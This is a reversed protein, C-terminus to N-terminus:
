GRKGIKGVCDVMRCRKHLVFGIESGGFGGCGRIGRPNVGIDRGTRGFFVFGVVSPLGSCAWDQAQRLTSPDFGVGCIVGAAVKKGGAKSDM